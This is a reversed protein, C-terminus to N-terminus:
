GDGRDTTDVSPPRMWRGGTLPGGDLAGGGGREAHFRRRDIAPRPRAGPAREIPREIIRDDTPEGAVLARLEATSPRDDLGLALLRRGGGISLAIGEAPAAELTAPSVLLRVQDSVGARETLEREAAPRDVGFAAVAIEVQDGLPRAADLWARLSDDLRARDGPSTALCLSLRPGQRRLLRHVAARYAAMVPETERRYWSTAYRASNVRNYIYVAEDLRTHRGEVQELVWWMEANDTCCELWGGQHDRLEALPISQFHRARATRLHSSLWRHWRYGKAAIVETPFDQDPQPWRSLQDPGMWSLYRGFTAEAGAAYAAAVQELAAPSALWDDGDLMCVVEDPEAQMYALRRARAPWLRAESRIIRVQSQRGNDAVFREVRAATDDTSQDDIYIARWRAWSQAFLSGLNRRYWEAANHAPIVVLMSPSGTTM